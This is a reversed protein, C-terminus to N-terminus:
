YQITTGPDKHIPSLQTPEPTQAEVGCLDIINGCTM